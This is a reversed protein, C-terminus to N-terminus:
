RFLSPIECSLRLPRRWGQSKIIRMRLDLTLLKLPMSYSISHLHLLLVPKYTLIRKNRLNISNIPGVTLINYFYDKTTQPM